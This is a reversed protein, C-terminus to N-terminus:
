SSGAEAWFKRLEGLWIKKIDCIWAPIKGIKGTCFAATAPCARCYLLRSCKRCPKQESSFNEQLLRRYNDIIGSYVEQFSKMFGQIDGFGYKGIEPHSSRGAFYDAFFRCGWLRGDAALALREQGAACGFMAQLPREQFNGIPIVHHRRYHWLLFKRLEEVQERLRKLSVSDWPHIISYSLHCNNVGREVLFRASHFLEGATDPVFVSNTELEINRLKIMRDLKELILPNMRSPRTTEQVTGDHSLNVRFKNANLFRLIEDTLLSGNTSLSYRLKRRRLAPHDHIYAVTRCITEFELLPEGGYFGIFGGPQFADQFFDLAKRIRTFGLSRSQKKQFCYRCDLNCEETLHLTLDSLYFEV